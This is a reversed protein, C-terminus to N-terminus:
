GCQGAFTFLWDLDKPYLAGDLLQQVLIQNGAANWTGAGGVTPAVANGFAPDHATDIFGPDNFHTLKRYSAPAGSINMLSGETQAGSNLNSNPYWYSTIWSIVQSHPSMHAHEDWQSPSNTLDQLSDVMGQANLHGRWLDMGFQYYPAGIQVFNGNQDTTMDAIFLIDQGDPSFGASEFWSATTDFASFNQTLPDHISAPIIQPVGDSGVVFKGMQLNWTGNAQNQGPAGDIVSWLLYQGDFSFFPMLAGFARDASRQLPPTTQYATLPFYQRGDASVAWLNSYWGNIVQVGGTQTRSDTFEAYPPNNPIERQIVLWSGDNNWDGTVKWTVASPDAPEDSWGCSLCTFAPALNTTTPAPAVYLQWNGNADQSSFAVQNNSARSWTAMKGYGGPGLQVQQESMVQCAPNATGVPDNQIFPLYVLNPGPQARAEYSLAVAIGLGLFLAVGLIWRV